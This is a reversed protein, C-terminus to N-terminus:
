TRKFLYLSDQKSILAYHSNLFLKSDTNTNQTQVLIYYEGGSFESFTVLSDELKSEMCFANSILFRQPELESTKNDTCIYKPELIYVKLKPNLGLLWEKEFGLYYITTDKEEINKIMRNVSM